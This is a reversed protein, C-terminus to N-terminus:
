EQIVGRFSAIARGGIQMRGRLSLEVRVEGARGMEVGQRATLVGGAPMRGQETLYAGLAGSATGTVPDEAIGYKPPVFFRGRTTAENEFAFPYVGTLAPNEPWLEEIRSRDVRLDSLSSVTRLPVFCAWLGSFGCAVALTDDLAEPSLGLIEAAVGAGSAPSTRPELQEMVAWEPRGDKFVMGAELIGARTSIRLPVSGEEGRIRGTWALVFLAAVTAHGCLDVECSSTFFRFQFDTRDVSETIFVTESIDNLERAILQMSDDDLGEARPVVGAPNGAFRRSTFSDVKWAERDAGGNM